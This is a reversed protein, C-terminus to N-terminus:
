GSQVFPKHRRCDDDSSCFCHPPPFVHPCGRNIHCWKFVPFNDPNWRDESRLGVVHQAPAPAPHLNDGPFASEGDSPDGDLSQAVSPPTSLNRMSPLCWENRGNREAILTLRAAHM